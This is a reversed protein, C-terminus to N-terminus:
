NSACLTVLQALKAAGVFYGFAELPLSRVSQLINGLSIGSCLFHRSIRGTHRPKENKQGAFSCLLFLSKESQLLVILTFVLIFVILWNYCLSQLIRKRLLWIKSLIVLLLIGHM